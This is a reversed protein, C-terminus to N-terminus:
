LWGDRSSSPNKDDVGDDTEVGKRKARELQDTFERERDALYKLWDRLGIVADQLAEKVKTM